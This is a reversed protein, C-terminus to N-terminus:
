IRFNNHLVFENVKYIIEKEVKVKTKKHNRKEEKVIYVLITKNIKMSKNSITFMITTMFSM